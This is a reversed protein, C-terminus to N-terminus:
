LSEMPDHGAPGTEISLACKSSFAVASDGESADESGAASPNAVFYRVVTRGAYRRGLESFSLPRDNQTEGLEGEHADCVVELRKGEGSRRRYWEAALWPEKELAERVTAYEGKVGLSLSPHEKTLSPPCSRRGLYLPWRPNRLAADAQDLLNRSGSLAVLFCADALYFRHSLPMVKKEDLSRETQFDRLQRGPQDIRVGMELAALDEVSEERSRGLAAAILGVVGSKTPERRTTRRVFRSSDGWSQLPGALRLLLVAM